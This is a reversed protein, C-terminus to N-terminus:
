DHDDESYVYRLATPTPLDITQVLSLRGDNEDIAYVFAKNTISGTATIFRGDPSIQIGRLKIAREVPFNDIHALEGTDSDFYYLGLLQQSNDIYVFKNNPHIQVDCGWPHETSILPMEVHIEPDYTDIRSIRKLEGTKRDLKYSCLCADM